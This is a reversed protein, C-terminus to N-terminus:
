RGQQQRALENALEQQARLNPNRRYEDAIAQNRQVQAAAAAQQQRQQAVAAARQQQAAQWNPDQARQQQRVQQNVLEQQARLNPNREYEDQVARNSWGRGPPPRGRWDDYRPPPPAYAYGPAPYVPAAYVPPAYAPASYGGVYGGGGYVPGPGGFGPYGGPDACGALAGLGMAGIIAWGKM